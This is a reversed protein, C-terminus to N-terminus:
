EIHNLKNMTKLGFDREFEENSRYVYGFANEWIAAKEMCLYMFVRERWPSFTEYM